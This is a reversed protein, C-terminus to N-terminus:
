LVHDTNDRVGLLVAIAMERDNVRIGRISGRQALGLHVEARYILEDTPVNIFEPHRLLYPVKEARVRLPAEAVGTQHTRNCNRRLNYAM